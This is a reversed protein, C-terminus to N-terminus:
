EDELPPDRLVRAVAVFGWAAAWVGCIAVAIAWGQEESMDFPKLSISAPFTGGSGGGGSGPPALLRTWVVTDPDRVRGSSGTSYCSGSESVPDGYSNVYQYSLAFASDDLSGDCM